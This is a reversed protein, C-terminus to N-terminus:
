LSYQVGKELSELDLTFSFQSSFVFLSDIITAGREPIDRKISIRLCM